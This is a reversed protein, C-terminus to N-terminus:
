IKMELSAVFIAGINFKFNVFRFESITFHPNGIPEASFYKLFNSSSFRLTFTTEQLSTISM